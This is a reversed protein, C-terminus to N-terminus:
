SSEAVWRGATIRGHHGCIKCRLSPSLTLPEVSLVDWGEPSAPRVPIWGSCRSRTVPTIHSYALGLLEGDDARRLEALVGSGIDIAASAAM